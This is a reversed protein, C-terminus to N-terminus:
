LLCFLIELNNSGKLTNSQTGSLSIKKRLIMKSIVNILQNQYIFDKDLIFSLYRCEDAPKLSHSSFDVCNATPLM